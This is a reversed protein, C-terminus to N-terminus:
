VDSKCKHLLIIFRILDGLPDVALTARPRLAEEGIKQTKFFSEQSKSRGTLTAAEVYVGYQTEPTLAKLVVAHQTGDASVDAPFGPSFRRELWFVSM